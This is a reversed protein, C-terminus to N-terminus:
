DKKCRISILADRGTVHRVIQASNYETVQFRAQNGVYSSASWFYGYGGYLNFGNYIVGALYADFGGQASSKSIGATPQSNVETISKMAAGLTSHSSDDYGLLPSGIDATTSFLSTKLIIGNKLDTWEQDSPLHWDQPCLGRIRVDDDYSGGQLVNGPDPTQGAGNGMNIAAAWNYLLGHARTVTAQNGPIFYYPSTYSSASSKTINGGTPLTTVRLHETTWVGDVFTRETETETGENVWSPSAAPDCKYSRSIKYTKVQTRYGVYFRSTNYSNGQHDTIAPTKSNGLAYNGAARETEKDDPWGVPSDPDLYEFGRVMLQLTKQKLPEPYTSLPQWTEGDWIHVGPCVRNSATEVKNINYVLLGIHEDKDWAPGTAGNVSVKLDNGAITLSNLKVRPLGLGKNTSSGQTLDLLAGKNPAQDSGITVQGHLSITTLLALLVIALTLTKKM